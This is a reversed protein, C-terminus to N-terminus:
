KNFSSLVLFFSISSLVPLFILTTATEALLMELFLLNLTLLFINKLFGNSIKLLVLTSIKNSAIPIDSPIELFTTSVAKFFLICTIVGLLASM